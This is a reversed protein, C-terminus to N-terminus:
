CYYFCSFIYLQFFWIFRPSFCFLYVVLIYIFYLFFSTGFWILWLSAFSNYLQHEYELRYLVKFSFGVGIRSFLSKSALSTWVEHSNQDDVMGM